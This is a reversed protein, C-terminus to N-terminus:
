KKNEKAKASEKDWIREIEKSIGKAKDGLLNNLYKLAKKRVSPEIITAM